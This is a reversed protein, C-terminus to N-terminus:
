QPLYLERRQQYFGVTAALGDQLTVSPAWGTAEFFKRSGSEYNGIDIKKLDEPFSTEVVRCDPCLDAIIMAVEKLSHKFGGINYIQGTQESLGAAIKLAEVVDSVYTFDRFQMGGGFLEINEGELGRNLFWGMFGQRSNKIQVRPGYTNTLRLIVTKLGFLRAYIQHYQEAAYQHIANIDPPNVPSDETVPAQGTAGYVQRTSSLVVTVNPNHERCVEMLNLQAVTNLQLDQMPDAISDAHSTVGALNFIYDVDKVVEALVAKDDMPSVVIEIRDKVSELNALNAGYEPLMADIVVVQAGAEALDITLNSGIFGAGGTICVKKGSFSLM